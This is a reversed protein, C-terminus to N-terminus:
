AEPKSLSRALDLLRRRRPESICAFSRLLAQAERDLQAGRGRDGGAPQSELGEFFFSVPVDLVRAVLWLRSASIRNVGLEYKQVQQFTVGLSKALAQQTMGIAMRRQRLRGGVHRDVPHDM